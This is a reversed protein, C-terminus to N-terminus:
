TMMYHFMRSVLHFRPDWLFSPLKDSGIEELQENTLNIMTLLGRHEDVIVQGIISGMVCQSEVPYRHSDVEIQSPTTFISM